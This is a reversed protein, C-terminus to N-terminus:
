NRAPAVPTIRAGGFPPPRLASGGFKAAAARVASVPQPPRVASRPPVNENPTKFQTEEVSENASSASSSANRTTRKAAVGHEFINRVQQLRQEKQRVTERMEQERRRFAEKEDVQTRADNEYRSLRQALSQVQAIHAEHACTRVQQRLQKNEGAMKGYEAHLHDFNASTEDYCRRLSEADIVYSRMRAVFQERKTSQERQLDARRRANAEFHRRLRLM